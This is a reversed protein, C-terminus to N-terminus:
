QDLLCTDGHLLVAGIIFLAYFSFFSLILDIDIKPPAIGFERV